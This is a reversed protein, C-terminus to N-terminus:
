GASRSSGPSCPSTPPWASSAAGTVRVMMYNGIAIHLAMVLTISMLLSEMNMTFGSLFLGTGLEDVALDDYIM